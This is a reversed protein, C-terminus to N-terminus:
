SLRVHIIGEPPYRSGGSDLNSSAADSRESNPDNSNPGEGRYTNLVDDPVMVSLGTILDSNLSELRFQKAAETVNASFKAIKLIVPKVIVEDLGDDENENSLQGEHVAVIKGRLLLKGMQISNSPLEIDLESVLNVFEQWKQRKTELIQDFEKEYHFSDQELNLAKKAKTIKAKTSHSPPLNIFSSNPDDKTSFDASKGSNTLSEANKNSALLKKSLNVKKVTAMFKSRLESKDATMSSIVDAFALTKRSKTPSNPLASNTVTMTMHAASAINSMRSMVADGLPDDDVGYEIKEAGTAFLETDILNGKTAVADSGDFYDEEETENADAAEVRYSGSRKFSNLDIGQNLIASLRTLRRATTPQSPSAGYTTAEEVDRVDNNDTGQKWGTDLKMASRFASKRAAVPASTLITNPGMDAQSPVCENLDDANLTWVQFQKDDLKASQERVMNVYNNERPDDSGKYGESGTVAQRSNPWSDVAINAIHTRLRPLGIFHMNREEAVQRRWGTSSLVSNPASKPRHISPEAICPVSMESFDDVPPHRKMGPKGLLKDVASEMKREAQQTLWDETEHQYIALAELYPQTHQHVRHNLDTEMLKVMRTELRHGPSLHLESHKLTSNFFEDIITPEANAKTKREASSFPRPKCLRGGLQKIATEPWRTVTPTLETPMYANDARHHAAKYPLEDYIHVAQAFNEDKGVPEVGVVINEIKDYYKISPKAQYPCELGYKSIWYSKTVNDDVSPDTLGVDDAGFDPNMLWMDFDSIGFANRSKTCKSRLQEAKTLKSVSKKANALSLASVSSTCKLGKATRKTPMPLSKHM